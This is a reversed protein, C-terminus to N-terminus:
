RLARLARQRAAEIRRATSADHSWRPWSYKTAGQLECGLRCALRVGKADASFLGAAGLIARVRSAGHTRRLADFLAWDEIGDRIQELRASPIPGNRGPYLLVFEGRRSVRVFPNDQGYSTMGQGYLVGDTGELANWLLFTRPNSLPEELGFGPTGSVGDYTYSWISARKRVREITAALERSRSRRTQHKPVTFQGYFRRSLVVWVDLDDGNKGDSLFANAGTPSPNGTMMARAGPWCAHLTKSQRAVLRQGELSPEDQAYLLPVSRGLWGNQEWFGRVARLYDCWGEPASPSLGAIWLPERTRNSSIPIRMAAFAGAGAADRMNTASDLWWKASSGYGAATRPEGFGWSSPSIRYEALFRFLAANAARREAASGLGYLRAVTNLYTTPSVHFSTLLTRDGTVPQAFPFVRVTLPVNTTSGQITVAVSARYTGPPVDLPTVVRVYIPQSLREAAKADGGWPVLADPTSGRGVDVFHGWALELRISGLTRTDLKAEVPGGGAAVIWAGEREGRGTAVSISRAGGPPLGTGTVTRSSPYALVSGHTAGSAAHSLLAAGFLACVCTALLARRMVM